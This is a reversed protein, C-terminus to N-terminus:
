EVIQNGSRPKRRQIAKLAAQNDASLIGHNLSKEKQLLVHGLYIGILEAEYVTHENVKGLKYKLTKSKGKRHM